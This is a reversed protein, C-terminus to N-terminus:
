VVSLATTNDLLTKLIVRRYRTLPPTATNKVELIVHFIQCTYLSCGETKPPVRLAAVSGNSSADPTIGVRAVETASNWQSGSVEWYQWWNYTLAGGDPDYSDGADLVITSNVPAEIEIPLTSCSENVVVVPPHSTNSGPGNPRLTWQMRAAMEYQYAERWRWVTAHNSLFEEGNVGTVNDACDAFHQSGEFVPIYRGGWSGYEPHNPVGLGNQMTFLMSPTDGEEIYAVDPYIAGLPGIQINQAIWADSVLSSDPGGHDFDYLREGSMGAWAAMGFQVWGHISAIYRLSPFNHRIWYGSNDQDSIAYVHVKSLFTDLETASRTSNIYWLAEALTNPGGWIQLYLPEDSSDVRDIFLSAGASINGGAKLADIAALGYTTAGSRIISLLYEETPFGNSHTQLNSSVNGYGKVAAEIQDPYTSSNLFTSTVAVMGEINHIDSHVLLRIFSMTDDPENSIDSMIFVRHKESAQIQSCQSTNVSASKTISTLSLIMAWM